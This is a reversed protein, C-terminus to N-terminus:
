LTGILNKYFGLDLHRRYQELRRRQAKGLLGCQAQRLTQQLLNEGEEYCEELPNGQRLFRNAMMAEKVRCAEHMCWFLLVTKPSSRPYPRTDFGKSQAEAMLEGLRRCVSDAMEVFKVHKTPLTLVAAILRVMCKGGKSGGKLAAIDRIVGQGARQLVAAREAGEPARSSARSMQRLRMQLIRDRLEAEAPVTRTPLKISEWEALLQLLEKYGPRQSWQAREGTAYGLVELDPTSSSAERGEEAPQM